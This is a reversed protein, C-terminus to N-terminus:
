RRGTSGRARSTLPRPGGLLRAKLRVWTATALEPDSHVLGSLAVLEGYLTNPTYRALRRAVDALAELNDHACAWDGGLCLTGVTHTAPDPQQRRQGM